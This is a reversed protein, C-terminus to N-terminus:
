ISSSSPHSEGAPEVQTVTSLITGVGPLSAVCRYGGASGTEGGDVVLSGNSLLRRGRSPLDLLLGDKKWRIDPQKGTETNYKCPIVVQQNSNVVLQRPSRDLSFAPFHWPGSFFHIYYRPSKWLSACQVLQCSCPSIRVLKPPVVLGAGRNLLSAPFSSNM